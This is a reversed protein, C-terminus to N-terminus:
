IESTAVGIDDVGAIFLDQQGRVSHRCSLSHTVDAITRNDTQYVLLRIVSVAEPIWLSPALIQRHQQHWQELRELTPIQAIVPVVAWVAINADIVLNPSSHSSIKMM